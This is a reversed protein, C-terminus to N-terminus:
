APGRSESGSPPGAPPNLWPAQRHVIRSGIRAATGPLTKKVIRAARTRAATLKDTHRAPASIARRPSTKAARRAPHAAVRHFQSIKILLIMHNDSFYSKQATKRDEGPQRIKSVPISAASWRTGSRVQNRPPSLNIQHAERRPIQGTTKSKPNQEKVIVYNPFPYAPPTEAPAKPNQNQDELPSQTIILSPTKRQEYSQQSANHHIEKFVYLVSRILRIRFSQPHTSLLM